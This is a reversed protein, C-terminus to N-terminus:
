QERAKGCLIAKSVLVPGESFFNKERAGFCEKEGMHAEVGEVDGLIWNRIAGKRTSWWDEKLSGPHNEM